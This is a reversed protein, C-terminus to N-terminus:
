AVFTCLACTGTRLTKKIGLFYLESILSEWIFLSALSLSHNTEKQCRQILFVLTTHFNKLYTPLSSQKGYLYSWKSKDLVENSEVIPECLLASSLTHIDDETLDNKKKSKKLIYCTIIKQAEDTTLEFLKEEKM